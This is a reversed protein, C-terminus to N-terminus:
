KAFLRRMEKQCIPLLTNAEFNQNAAVTVRHACPASSQEIHCSCASIHKSYIPNTSIRRGYSNEYAHFVHHDDTQCVYINAAAQFHNRILPRSILRHSRELLLCFWTWGSQLYHFLCLLLTVEPWIHGAILFRALLRCVGIHLIPNKIGYPLATM